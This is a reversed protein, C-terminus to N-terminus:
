GRRLVINGSRGSEILILSQLHPRWFNVCVPWHYVVVLKLGGLYHLLTLNGAVVLGLILAGILSKPSEKM